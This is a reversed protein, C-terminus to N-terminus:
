QTLFRATLRLVRARVRRQGDRGEDCSRRCRASLSQSVLQSRFAARPALTGRLCSSFHVPNEGATRTVAQTHRHRHAEHEITSGSLTLTFSKCYSVKSSPGETHTQQQKKYLSSKRAKIPQSKKANYLFYICSTNNHIGRGRFQFCLYSRGKNRWMFALYIYSCFEHYSTTFAFM